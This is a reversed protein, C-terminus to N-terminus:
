RSLLARVERYNFDTAVSVDTDRREAVGESLRQHDELMEELEESTAPRKDKLASDGADSLLTGCASVGRGELPREGFPQGLAGTERTRLDIRRVPDAQRESRDKEPRARLGRHSRELSELPLLTACKSFRRHGALTETWAPRARQVTADRAHYLQLLCPCGDLVATAASAQPM